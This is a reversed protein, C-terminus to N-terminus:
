PFLFRMGANIMFGGGMLWIWLSAGHLLSPWGLGKLRHYSTGLGLGAMAASLLITDLNLLGSYLWEPLHFVSHLTASALFGFAFFPITIRRSNTGEHRKRNFYGLLLLFPALMMVRTMKMIIASGSGGVADAVAVVQGVEHVTSGTYFAFLDADRIELGHFLIPYLLMSFTGFLVVTGVAMTTKKAESKLVSETAIVAAAGCISSGSANLMASDRDLGFWRIGVYSGLLFTTSVVFLDILIGTFGISKLDQFSLRLGYLVIGWRLVNKQAFQIGREMSLTPRFIPVNALLLGGILALTLPSLGAKLLARNSGLPFALVAMTAPILLGLVFGSRRDSLHQM